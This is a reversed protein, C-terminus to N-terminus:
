REDNRRALEAEARGLDRFEGVMEYQPKQGAVKTKRVLYFKYRKSDPVLFHEQYSGNSSRYRMTGTKTRYKNTGAFPDSTKM